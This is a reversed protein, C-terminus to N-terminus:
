IMRYTVNVSQGTGPVIVIGDTFMLNCLTVGITNPIAALVNAAAAGGTTASNNITGNTTGAVTVCFSLVKGTGAIILTSATVTTSTYEENHEELTQQVNNLAVVLNKAATLIDDLSAAM